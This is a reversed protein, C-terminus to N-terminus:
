EGLGALPEFFCEFDSDERANRTAFRDPGSSLGEMELPFLGVSSLGPDAGTPPM